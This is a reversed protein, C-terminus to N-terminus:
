KGTFPDNLDMTLQEAIQDEKLQNRIYEMIKETNKGTTDM